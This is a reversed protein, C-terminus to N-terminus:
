RKDGIRFSGILKESQPIPAKTSALYDARKQYARQQTTLAPKLPQRLPLPIKQRKRWDLFARLLHTCLYALGIGILFPAKGDTLGTEIFFAVVAFVISTQFILWM